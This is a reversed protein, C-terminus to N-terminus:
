DNQEKLSTRKKWIHGRNTYLWKEDEHYTRVKQGPKLVHLRNADLKPESRPYTKELIKAVEFEEFLRPKYIYGKNTKVFEQYERIVRVMELYNLKECKKSDLKKEMRPYTGKERKVYNFVDRTLLYHLENWKAKEIYGKPCEKSVVDFHRIVDNKDLHKYRDLLDAILWRATEITEISFRGNPEPVLEISITNYNGLDKRKQTFWGHSNGVAWAIDRNSIPHFVEKGRIFYHASGGARNNQLHLAFNKAPATHETNHVVLAKIDKATRKGKTYNRKNAKISTDVKLIM